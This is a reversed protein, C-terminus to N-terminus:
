FVRGASVFHAMNMKINTFLQMFETVKEKTVMDRTFFILSMFLGNTYCGGVGFVTKIRNATVFDQAPVIKRNLHDVTTAADAVYFIGAIKGLKDVVVDMNQSDLWALGIGMDSMLRAIMPLTQVFKASILPIALHGQSKLRDNWAPRVGATGLLTLTITKDTLQPRVSNAEAIRLGFKQEAQPLQGYPLTSYLRVLVLSEKFEQYLTEVCSQSAAQMTPLSRLDKNFTKTLTTFNQTLNNLNSM